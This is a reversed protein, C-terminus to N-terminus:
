KTNELGRGPRGGPGPCQHLRLVADVSGGAAAPVDAIYDLDPRPAKCGVLFPAAIDGDRFGNIHLRNESNGDYWDMSDLM